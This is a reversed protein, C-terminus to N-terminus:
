LINSHTDMTQDRGRFGVGGLFLLLLLLLNVGVYFPVQIFHPKGIHKNCM